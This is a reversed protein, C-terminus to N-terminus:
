VFRTPPSCFTKSVEAPCCLARGLVVGPISCAIHAHALMLMCPTVDCMTVFRMCLTSPLIGTNRGSIDLPLLCTAKMRVQGAGEAICVVCHGKRELVGELYKFLGHDGKITFPVEPILVADVVGSVCCRFCSVAAVPDACGMSADAWLVADWAASNQPALSSCM